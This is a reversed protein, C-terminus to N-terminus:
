VPAPYFDSFSKQYSSPSTKMLHRIILTFYQSQIDRWDCDKREITSNSKITVTVIVFFGESYNFVLEFLSHNYNLFGM